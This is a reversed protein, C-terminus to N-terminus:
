KAAKRAVKVAAKAAAKAQAVQTQKLVSLVATLVAIVAAVAGQVPASVGGVNEVVELVSVALTGYKAVDAAVEAATIGSKTPTTVATYARAIISSM